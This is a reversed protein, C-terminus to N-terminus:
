PSPFSPQAPSKRWSQPTRSPQAVLDESRKPKPLEDETEAEIENERESEIREECESEVTSRKKM